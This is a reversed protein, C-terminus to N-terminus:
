TGVGPRLSKKSDRVCRYLLLTCQLIDASYTFFAELIKQASESSSNSEAEAFSINVNLKTLAIYLLKM